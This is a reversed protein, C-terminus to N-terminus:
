LASPTSCVQSTRPSRKKQSSSVTGTYEAYIQERAGESNSQEYIPAEFHYQPHPPHLPSQPPHYHISAPPGTVPEYGPMNQVRPDDQLPKPRGEILHGSSHTRMNQLQPRDAGPDMKVAPDRPGPAGYSDYQAPTHSLRHAEEPEYHQIVESRRRSLQPQPQGPAYSLAGHQLRPAQNENGVWPHPDSRIRKPDPQRSDM